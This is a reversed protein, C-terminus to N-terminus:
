ARESPVECNWFHFVAGNRSSSPETNRTKVAIIGGAEEVIRRVTMLGIGTGHGPAMTTYFPEFINASTQLDMGAGSDSVSFELVYNMGELEQLRTELGVTGGAPMADRANLVLNLIVQQAEALSLGVRPAGAALDMTIAINEGALHRLLPVIERLAQDFSVWRPADKEERGVTMLQRILGTGQEAAYRIEEIKLGLSNTPALKIKLPDCYLLIGTLLNNFDHAVGSLLRGVIETLRM